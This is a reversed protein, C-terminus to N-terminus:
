DTEERFCQKCTLNEQLNRSLNEILCYGISKWPKDVSSITVSTEKHFNKAVILIIETIIKKQWIKLVINDLM